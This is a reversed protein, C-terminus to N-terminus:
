FMLCTNRFRNKYLKSHYVFTATVGFGFPEKGDGTLQSSKYFLIQM